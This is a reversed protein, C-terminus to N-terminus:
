VPKGVAEAARAKAAQRAAREDLLKQAYQRAAEDPVGAASGDLNRRPEGRVVARLYPGQMTWRHLTVGVTKRDVIKGEARLVAKIHGSIGLALPVPKTFAAPWRARWDALVVEMWPAWQTRRAPTRRAPPEAPRLSTETVTLGTVFDAVAAGNGDPQEAMSRGSDEELLQQSM